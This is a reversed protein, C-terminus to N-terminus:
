LGFKECVSANVRAQGGRIGGTRSLKFDAASSTKLPRKQGRKSVIGRANPQYLGIVKIWRGIRLQSVYGRTAKSLGAVVHHNSPENDFPSCCLFHNHAAYPRLEDLKPNGIGQAIRGEFPVVAAPSQNGRIIVPLM